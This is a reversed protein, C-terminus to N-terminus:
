YCRIEIVRASPDGGTALVTLRLATARVIPFDHVQRRMFNGHVTLLEHWAGQCQFELRYDTVVYPSVKIKPFTMPPNNMDTDFTLSIQTLTQEAEWTLTLEAPLSQDPDSVWLTHKPDIIRGFGNIVQDPSCDALVPTPDELRTMMGWRQDVVFGKGDGADYGRFWDLPAMDLTRWAIGPSPELWIWLYREPVVLRVPFAVWGEFGPQLTATAVALDADNWFRGPDREQRLHARVVSVHQNVNRLYLWVAPIGTEENRPLMGARPIDLTKWTGPVGQLPQFMEQKSVSSACVKANRARDKPDHSSLGPIFQDQRLLTQQLEDLWDHYLGRASVQHTCMLAAATGAAQGAVAITNQVRVTGLAVHSVSICRGAFLLNDINRSYLSRFPIQVLPVHMNAHFPGEEGSFIGRPHHVDITWGAHGIADPFVTQNVCDKETLVVDGIFRRNERKANYIPMRVLDYNAAKEKEDWDHKLWGFFSLSIRFLEDRTREAEWLDDYDGPNEIWWHGQVGSIPRGFARGAPFRYCWNPIAFPVPRDRKEAKFSVCGGMLCGSMTINDAREPALEENHQWRAERGIRYHAGAFYGLWGDGTCDICVRASHRTRVLSRNNQVIVATIRNDNTEAGIVLEDLLITLYGKQQEAVVLRELAEQYTTDHYDRLRRIEEAIGSERAHPQRSSAGDFGVGAETSANGGLVPRSQILLVKKGHRAAAVAAPVGGPGGGAVVVDWSCGDQVIAPLGLLSARWVRLREKEQPPTQDFNDTIVIAACRAFYGSQDILRLSCSGAPLDFDGAIEWIWEESPAMGFSRGAPQGNISVTFRGPGHERLWNRNRVWVRYRGAQPINTRTVADAVPVGPKQIAILFPQGMQLVFQSDIQWGGTEAFDATDLWITHEM